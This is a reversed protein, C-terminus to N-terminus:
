FRLSMGVTVGDPGPLATVNEWRESGTVLAVFSGIIAGAISGVVAAKARQDGDFLAHGCTALDDSTKRLTLCERNMVFPGALAGSLAGITGGIAGGMLARSWAPSRGRSLDIREVTRLPLAISDQRGRSALVLREATHRTITGIVPETGDRLTVRVRDGIAVTHQAFADSGLLFWFALFTVIHRM